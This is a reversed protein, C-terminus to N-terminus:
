HLHAPVAAEQSPSETSTAPEAPVPCVDGEHGKRVVNALDALWSTLPMYVHCGCAATLTLRDKGPELVLYAPEASIARCTIRAVVYSGHQNRPLHTEVEICLQQAGPAAATDAPAM